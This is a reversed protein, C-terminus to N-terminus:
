NLFNKTFNSILAGEELYEHNVPIYYNILPNSFKLAFHEEKIQLQKFSVYQKQKLRLLITKKKLL